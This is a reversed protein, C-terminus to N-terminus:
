WSVSDAGRRFDRLSRKPTLEEAEDENTSRRVRRGGNRLTKERKAALRMDATPTFVKLPPVDDEEVGRCRACYCSNPEMAELDWRLETLLRKEEPLEEWQVWCDEDNEDMESTFSLLTYLLKLPPNAGKEAFLKKTIDTVLALEGLMRLKPDDTLQDRLLLNKYQALRSVQGVMEGDAVHTFVALIYGIKSIRDLYTNVCCM